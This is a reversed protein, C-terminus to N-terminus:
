NKISKQRQFKLYIGLFLVQHQFSFDTSSTTLTSPKGDLELMVVNSPKGNLELIFVNSPKGNLKLIIEKWIQSNLFISVYM